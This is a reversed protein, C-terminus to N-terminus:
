LIFGVHVLLHAGRTYETTYVCTYVYWHMDTVCRPGVSISTFKKYIIRSYVFSYIIYKDDKYICDIFPALGLINM